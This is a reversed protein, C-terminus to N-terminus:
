TPSGGTQCPDSPANNGTGCCARQDSNGDACCFAQNASAGQSCLRAPLEWLGPTSGNNCLANIPTSNLTHINPITYKLKKM